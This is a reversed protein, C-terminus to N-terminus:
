YKICPPPGALVMGLGLCGEEGRVLRWMDWRGSELETFAKWEELFKLAVRVRTVGLGMKEQCLFEM